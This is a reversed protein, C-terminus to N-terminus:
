AITPLAKPGKIKKDIATMTTHVQYKDSTMGTTVASEAERSAQPAVQVQVAM